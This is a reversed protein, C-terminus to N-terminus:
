SKVIVNMSSIINENDSHLTYDTVKGDAWEIDVTVNGKAALGKVSGTVFDRGYTSKELLAGIYKQLSRLTGIKDKSCIHRVESIM